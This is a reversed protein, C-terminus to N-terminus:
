RKLIFYIGVLELYKLNYKHEFLPSEKAKELEESTYIRNLSYTYDLFIQKYICTEEPEKEIREFLGKSANPTSIM